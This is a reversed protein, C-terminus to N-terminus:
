ETVLIHPVATAVLTIDTSVKGTIPAIVPGSLTHAPLVMVSAAVGAPPTHLLVAVPMAVTDAPPTTVPLAAPVM